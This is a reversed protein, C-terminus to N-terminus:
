EIKKNNNKKYGYLMFVFFLTSYSIDENSTAIIFLILLLIANIKSKTLKLFYKFLGLLVISFCIIGYKSLIKLLTNTNNEDMTIKNGLFEIVDGRFLNSIKEEGIGVLPNQSFGKLNILISSTRSVFSGNRYEIKDFLTKKLIPSNITLILFPLIVILAIFKKKINISSFLIYIIFLLALTIFGATSFTSIISISLIIIKKVDLKENKNYFLVIILAILCYLAFVGPERFIGWNRRVYWSESQNLRIINMYFFNGYAAYKNYIVPLYNIISPYVITIFYTFLSSLGLFSMVKVFSHSFKEFSFLSIIIYSLVFLFINRFYNINDDLNIIMTLLQLFSLLIIILFIKGNYKKKNKFSYFVLYLLLCLYIIDKILRFGSSINTGFFFSQSSFFILIFVIIDTKNISLKFKHKIM